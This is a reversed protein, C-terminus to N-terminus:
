NSSNIQSKVVKEIEKIVGSWENGTNGGNSQSSESIPKCLVIFNPFWEEKKFDDDTMISERERIM